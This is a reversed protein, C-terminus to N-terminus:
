TSPLNGGNSFITKFSVNSVFCCETPLPINSGRRLFSPHVKSPAITNQFGSVECSQYENKLVVTKNLFTRNGKPFAEIDKNCKWKQCQSSSVNNRMFPFVNMMQLFMWPIEHRIRIDSFSFRYTM